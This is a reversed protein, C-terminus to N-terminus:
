AEDPPRDSAPAESTEDGDLPRDSGPAENTEDGDTEGDSPRAGDAADPSDADRRSEAGGHPGPLGVAERRVLRATLWGLVVVALVIVAWLLWVSAGGKKPPPHFGPNPELTGAAISSSRVALVLDRAAKLEYRPFPTDAKGVLLHYRGAPAVVFLEATAITGTAKRIQLPPDDGDDVALVLGEARIGTADVDLVLEDSKGPRRRLTGSWLIREQGSPDRALLSAKRGVYAADSELELECIPLPEAPPRLSYRSTGGSSKPTGVTLVVSDRAGQELLYPWQRGQPDVIRLDALDARAHALEHPGLGLRSVGEGVEVIQFERRHSFESIVVPPGPRMMFSLAPKSDFRPNVRVAGVSGERVASQDLARRGLGDQALRQLDYGPAQARGGGFRLWLPAPRGQDDFVLSPRDVVAEFTLEELPPSGGDDLIVELRDGRARALSIETHDVEYPDRVRYLEGRALERGKGATGLDRVVVPRHFTTTTTIVRLREPVIGAPRALELKTREGMRRRGLETLRVAFQEAKAVRAAEFRLVPELYDREGRLQIELRRPLEPPLAIRLQERLPDPLRFITTSVLPEGESDPARIQLDRVFHPRETVFELEWAGTPSPRDPVAVVLREAYLRTGGDGRVRRQEVGSPEVEVSLTVTRRPALPRAASDVAFPVDQGRSDFLRLDILDSGTTELVAAPLPLRVLGPGSRLEVPAESSFLASLDGAGAPQARLAQPAGLALAGCVLMWWLPARRPKTLSM